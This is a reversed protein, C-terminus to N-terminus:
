DMPPLEGSSSPSPPPRAAGVWRAIEDRVLTVASEVAAAVPASLDMSFHGDCPRIEAGIVVTEPPSRGEFLIPLVHILHNLDLAHASFAAEPAEIDEFRLRHVRGECAIFALADVVIARECGDFHGLAGLGALGADFLRVGEPVPAECLRRYVHIGFGDDGQLLNGFCIVHLSM